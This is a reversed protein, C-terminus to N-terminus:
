SQTKNMYKRIILNIRNKLEDTHSEATGFYVRFHSIDVVILKDATLEAYQDGQSKLFENIEFKIFQTLCDLLPKYKPALSPPSLRTKYWDYFRDTQKLKLEKLNNHFSDLIQENLELPSTAFSKILSEINHIRGNLDNREHETCNFENLCTQLAQLEKNFSRFLKFISDKEKYLSM